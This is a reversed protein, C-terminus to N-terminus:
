QREEEGAKPRFEIELGLADLIASLHATPIRKGRTLYNAVSPQAVGLKEALASQFGRPQARMKTRLYEEAEEWNM